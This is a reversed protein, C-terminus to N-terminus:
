MVSPAEPGHLGAVHLAVAHRISGAHPPMTWLFRMGVRYVSRAGEVAHCRVVEIDDGYEKNGFKM